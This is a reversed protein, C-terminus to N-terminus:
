RNMGGSWNSRLLGLILADQIEGNVHYRERLHGERQFGQRELVRLSRLNRPDVDAELRHLGLSGFAFEIVTPLVESMIRQGWHARGLAFGVEARRHTVDIHSLTCTGIVLDDAQRAIGWQLLSKSRFYEHISRLLAMGQSPDVFAPSSWYRMVEPDSFVAYLAPVDAETLWRLDVRSAVLRPLQDSWEFLENM